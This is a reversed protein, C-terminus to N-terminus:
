RAEVEKSQTAPEPAVDLSSLGQVMTHLQAVLAPVDADSAGPRETYGHLIEILEDVTIGAARADLLAHMAEGAAQKAADSWDSSKADNAIWRSLDALVTKPFGAAILPHPKPPTAKASKPLAAPPSQIEGTEMDVHVPQANPITEVETEDLMGLGSMSLTLRRKGKTEAKMMANAKAEGKLGAISVAGTSEDIRGDPLRGQATVVYIDELIDRSVITVSIKHVSRLQDSCTKNAYLIMKGNLTLYDFPKTLPNLGASQCVARYYDLRQRPTLKSLDGVLVVQEIIAAQYDATM